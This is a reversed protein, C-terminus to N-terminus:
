NIMCRRLNLLEKSIILSVGYASELKSSKKLRVAIRIRYKLKEANKSVGRDYDNVFM